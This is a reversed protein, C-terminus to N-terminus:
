SLVLALTAAPYQRVPEATAGLLLQRQEFWLTQGPYHGAVVPCAPGRRRPALRGPPQDIRRDMPLTPSPSVHCVEAFGPTPPVVGAYRISRDPRMGVMRSLRLSHCQGEQAQVRGKFAGLGEGGFRPLPPRISCNSIRAARQNGQKSGTTVM